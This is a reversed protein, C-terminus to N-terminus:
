RRRKDVVVLALLGAISILSLWIGFRLGPSHYSMVIEHEGPPLELARMFLNARLIPAPAGDVTARWGTDFQENFVALGAREGRCRATLRDNSFAQLQCVGARGSAGPLARARADPALWATNGAVVEPQYLRTEAEADALVEAHGALFVRPLVQTVRYLRAGPLPDFIPQLGAREIPQRPDRVSLVAYEVGALRLASLRDAQGADWAKAFISPLAADYGPVMAVGWVNAINPVLTQMLRM